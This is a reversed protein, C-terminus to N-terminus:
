RCWCCWRCWDFFSGAAGQRRQPGRRKNFSLFSPYMHHEEQVREQRREVRLLLRVVELRQDLERRSSGEEKLAYDIFFRYECQSSAKCESLWTGRAAERLSQHNPGSTIHIFLLSCVSPALMLTMSVLSLLM